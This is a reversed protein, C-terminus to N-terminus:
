VPTPQKMCGPPRHFCHLHIARVLPRHENCDLQRLRLRTFTFQQDADAGHAYRVAFQVPIRGRMCFISGRALASYGPMLERTDDGCQSFVGLAELHTLVDVAHAVPKNVACDRLKAHGLRLADRGLWHSEGVFGRSCYWDSGQGCPLAQELACLHLGALPCQYLAASAGDTQKGRLESVLTARM